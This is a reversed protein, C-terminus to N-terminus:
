TIFLSMSIGQSTYVDLAEELKLYFDTANELTTFEIGTM